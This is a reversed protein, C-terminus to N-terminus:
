YEVFIFLCNNRIINRNLNFVDVYIIDYFMNVTNTKMNKKTLNYRNNVTKCNLLNFFLKNHKTLLLLGHKQNFEVVFSKFMFLLYM